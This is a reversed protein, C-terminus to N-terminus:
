AFAKTFAYFILITLALEGIVLAYLRPWHPEFNSTRPLFSSSTEARNEEEENKM